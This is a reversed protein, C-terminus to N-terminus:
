LKGTAPLLRTWISKINPRTTDSVGVLKPNIAARQKLVKYIGFPGNDPEQYHYYYNQRYPIRKDRLANGNKLAKELDFAKAKNEEIRKLAENLKENLQSKVEDSLDRKELAKKYDLARRTAGSVKDYLDDIENLVNKEAYPYIRKLVTDTREFLDDYIERVLHDAKVIDQWREPFEEKLNQLTYQHLKGFEDPKKGEGYWQVAASEKSGKKIGLGETIERLKERDNLVDKRYQNKANLWPQEVNEKLWKRSDKNKGAMADFNRSPDKGNSVGKEGIGALAERAEASKLDAKEAYYRGKKPPRAEEPISPEPM